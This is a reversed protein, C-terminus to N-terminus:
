EKEISKTEYANQSLCDVEALRAIGCNLCKYVTSNKQYSGYSGERIDGFYLLEYKSYNCIECKEKKM